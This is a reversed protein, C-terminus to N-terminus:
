IIARAPSEPTIAFPSVAYGIPTSPIPDLRPKIWPHQLLRKATWRKNPDRNLCRHLFDICEESLENRIEESIYTVPTENTTMINYMGALPNDFSKWPIQGTLMEIVVCGTSWIDCMGTYPEGKLVEPAMWNCTGKISTSLLKKMEFTDASVLPTGKCSGVEFATGSIRRIRNSRADDKMYGTSSGFDCLKIQIKEDGTLLINTSKIDRHMLPRKRKSHLYYVAELIQSCISSAENEQLKTKLSIYTGLTGRHLLEMFILLYHDTLEAGFCRVINPHDLTSMNDMESRIPGTLEDMGGEIDSLIFKVAFEFEHSLSHGSYIRGQSGEGICETKVWEGISPLSSHYVNNLSCASSSQSKHESLVKEPSSEYVCSNSMDESELCFPELLVMPASLAVPTESARTPPTSRGKLSERQGRVIPIFVSTSDLERSETLPELSSSKFYSSLSMGYLSSEHEANNQERLSRIPQYELDELSDPFDALRSNAKALIDARHCSKVILSIGEKVERLAPCQKRNKFM